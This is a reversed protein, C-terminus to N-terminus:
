NTINGWQRKFSQNWGVVHINELCGNLEIHSEIVRKRISSNHIYTKSDFHEWWLIIIGSTNDYQM